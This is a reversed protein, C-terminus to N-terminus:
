AIVQALIAVTRNNDHQQGGRDSPQVLLLLLGRDEETRRSSSSRPPFTRVQFHQRMQKGEWHEGIRGRDIDALVQQELPECTMYLKNHRNMTEASAKISSTEQVTEAFTM